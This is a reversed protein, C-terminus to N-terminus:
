NGFLRRIVALLGPAKTELMMRVYLFGFFLAWALAIWGPIDRWANRKPESAAAALDSRSM